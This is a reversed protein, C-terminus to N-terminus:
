SATLTLRPQSEPAARADNHIHTLGNQKGKQKTILYICCTKDQQYM